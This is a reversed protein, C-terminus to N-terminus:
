LNLNKRLSSEKKTKKTVKKKKIKKKAKQDTEGLIEELNFDDNESDEALRNPSDYFDSELKNIRSDIVYQRTENDVVRASQAFKKNRQTRTKGSM